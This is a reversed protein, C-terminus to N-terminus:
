GRGRLTLLAPVVAALCVVAAVTFADRFGLMLAQALVVRGLYDEFGALRLTEPVGEQAMTAEVARRLELTAPNGGDQTAALAAAHIQTHQELVISLGNVGLAGGFQRAFNIMGAGQGLYRPPLARLAGTNMSPMALSLGVRGVLIWLAYTWFGLDTDVRSMLWCSYAFVALGITMPWTPAVRDAIRGSVPFCLIM